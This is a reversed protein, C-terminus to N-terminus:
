PVVSRLGLTQDRNIGAVPASRVAFGLWQMSDVDPDLTGSRFYLLQTSRARM